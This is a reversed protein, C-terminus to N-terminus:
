RNDNRITSDLFRVLEVCEDAAFGRTEIAKAIVDATAIDNELMGIVRLMRAIGKADADINGDRGAVLQDRIFFRGRVLHMLWQALHDVVSELCHLALELRQDLFLAVFLNYGPDGIGHSFGRGHV